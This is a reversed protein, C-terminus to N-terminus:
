GMVQQGVSYFVMGVFVLGFLWVLGKCLLSLATALFQPWPIRTFVWEGAWILAGVACFILIMGVVSVVAGTLISLIAHIM